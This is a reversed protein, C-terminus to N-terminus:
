VPRKDKRKEVERNLQAMCLVPIKLERAAKKANEANFFPTVFSIATVDIGQEQLVKAALISDLGGSLLGLAKTM